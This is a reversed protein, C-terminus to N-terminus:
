LSSPTPQAEESPDAPQGGYLLKLVVKAADLWETQRRQDFGGVRPDPLEQWLGVLLPHRVPLPSSGADKAPKTAVVEPAGAAAVAPM